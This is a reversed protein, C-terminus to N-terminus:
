LGLAKRQLALRDVGGIMRVMNPIDITHVPIGGHVLSYFELDVTFKVPVREGPKYTGQDIERITGRMIHVIPTVNGNASELAGRAILPVYANQTFGWHLLAQMDVSIMSFSAELKEMGMDLALTSDMGGARFDDNKVTLKPPTFEEIQGAYGKGDIFLNFNKLVDRASM